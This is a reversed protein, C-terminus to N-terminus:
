RRRCPLLAHMAHFLSVIKCSCWCCPQVAQQATRGVQWGMDKWKPTKLAECAIGPFALGWLERLQDQHSPNSGDYPM